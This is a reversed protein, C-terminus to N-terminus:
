QLGALDFAKLIIGTRPDIATVRGVNDDHTFVTGRSTLALGSIERLDSPIIWEALAFQKSPNADAEAIRKRLVQLREPQLKRVEAARAEPEDRCGALSIGLLALLVTERVGKM